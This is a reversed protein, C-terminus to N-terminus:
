SGMNDPYNAAQEQRIMFGLQACFPLFGHCLRRAQTFAAGFM